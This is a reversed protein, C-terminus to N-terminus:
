YGWHLGEAESNFELPSELWLPFLASSEWVHTPVRFGTVEPGARMESEDQGVWELALTLLLLLPQLCKM